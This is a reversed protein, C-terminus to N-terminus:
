WTSQIPVLSNHCEWFTGGAVCRFAAFEFRDCDTAIQAIAPKWLHKRATTGSSLRDPVISLWFLLHRVRVSGHQSCFITDYRLFFLCGGQNTPRRSLWTRSLHHSNGRYGALKRCGRVWWSMRCLWLLDSRRSRTYLYFETFNGIREPTGDELGSQLGNESYKIFCLCSGM